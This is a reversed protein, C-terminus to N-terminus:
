TWVLFAKNKPGERGELPLRMRSYDLEVWFKCEDMRKAPEYKVPEWIRLNAGLIFFIVRVTWQIPAGFNNSLELLNDLWIALYLINFSSLSAAGM